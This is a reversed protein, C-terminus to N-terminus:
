ECIEKGQITRTEGTKTWGSLSESKSWKYVTKKSTTKTANIKTTSYKNCKDGELKYGSDCKKM